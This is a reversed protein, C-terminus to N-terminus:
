SVDTIHYEVNNFVFRQGATKGLMLQGVPSATSVAFYTKGQVLLQGASISLFFVGNNTEVVSGLKALGTYDNIDISTLVHEMQRAGALLQQHRSIEQQMMERTTEFKDGASSKTDDTAADTASAIAQTANAIRGQVYAKCALLLAEKRTETM